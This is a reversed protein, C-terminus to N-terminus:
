PARATVHPPPMITAFPARNSGNRRSRTDDASFLGAEIWREYIARETQGADYQAPLDHLEQTTSM